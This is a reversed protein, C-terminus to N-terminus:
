TLFERIFSVHIESKQGITAKKSLAITLIYRL